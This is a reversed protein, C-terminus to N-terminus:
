SVDHIHHALDHAMYRAFSDISFVSGDSRTGTRSWAQPAIGDLLGALMSAADDIEGAIVEPEALDYRDAIATADQDWDAFVPEDENAMLSVRLHGIRM